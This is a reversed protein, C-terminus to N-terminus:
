EESEALMLKGNTVYLKYKKGTTDDTLTADQSPQIPTVETPAFMLKGDAMYLKYANGTTQDALVVASSAGSGGGNDINDIQEQLSKDTDQLNKIQGNTTVMYQSLTQNLRSVEESSAGGQGINKLQGLDYKREIDAPTRVGQRDQKSSMDIV